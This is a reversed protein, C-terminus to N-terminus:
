NPIRVERTTSTLPVQDATEGSGWRWWLSVGTAPATFRVLQRARSHEPRLHGLTSRVGEWELGIELEEPLDGLQAHFEFAADPALTYASSSSLRAGLAVEGELRLLIADPSSPFPLAVVDGKDNLALVTPNEADAGPDLFVGVEGSPLQRCGDVLFANSTGAVHVEQVPTGEWEGLSDLIVAPRRPVLLIRGLDVLGQTIQVEEVVEAEYGVATLELRLREPLPFPVSPNGSVARPLPLFLGGGDSLALNQDEFSWAIVAWNDSDEFQVKLSSLSKPSVGDETTLQAVLQTGRALAVCQTEGTHEFVVRGYVLGDRSLATVCYPEGIVANPFEIAGGVSGTRQRSERLRHVVLLGWDGRRLELPPSHNWQQTVTDWGLLPHLTVDIPVSPGSLTPGGLHVNLNGCRPAQPWDVKVDLELRQDQFPAYAVALRFESDFVLDARMLASVGHVRQFQEVDLALGWDQPSSFGSAAVPQTHSWPEGEASEIRINTVRKAVAQDFRLTLLSDAQLTVERTGPILLQAVHGPARIEIEGLESDLTISGEEIPRPRWSSSSGARVNVEHLPIGHASVVRISQPEEALPRHAYPDLRDGPTSSSTGSTLNAPERDIEGSRAPADINGGRSAAIGWGTAARIGFTAMMLLALLGLLHRKNM